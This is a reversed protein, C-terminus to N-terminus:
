DINEVPIIWWKAEGTSGTLLPLDDLLLLVRSGAGYSYGSGGRISAQDEYMTVGPVKSIAQDISTTNTSELMRPKIMEVSVTVESLKQEHKGASIVIEDLLKTEEIMAIDVVKTEGAKLNVERTTEGYGIFRFKLQYKGEPVQILYNGFIDTAVGQNSGYIVNVGVLIEKTKSDTVSGKITCEQGYILPQFFMSIIFSLYLKKM